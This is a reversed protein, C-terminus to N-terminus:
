NQISKALTKLQKTDALHAINLMIHLVAQTLKISNPMCM